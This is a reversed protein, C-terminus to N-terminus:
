GGAGGPNVVDAQMAAMTLQLYDGDSGTPYARGEGPATLTLVTGTDLQEAVEPFRMTSVVLYRAPRGGTNRLRHAGEPGPAFSVVAGRALERWGGPTRLELRGDLVLLLEENAHHVHYPSGLAGPDLEYLTAGLDRAGAAAAVRTGRVTGLDRDWGAVDFINPDDTM